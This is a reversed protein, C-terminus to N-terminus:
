TSRVGDRGKKERYPWVFLGGGVCALYFAIYVDLTLCTPFNVRLLFAGDASQRRVILFSDRKGRRKHITGEMETEEATGRSDRTGERVCMGGARKEM